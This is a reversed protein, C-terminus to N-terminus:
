LEVGLSGGGVYFGGSLRPTPQLEHWQFFFELHLPAYKNRLHLEGGVSVVHASADILCSQGMPAATGCPVGAAPPDPAPSWEFYYGGRLKVDVGATTARRWELAVRPVVTDHFNPPPSPPTGATAVQNPTPYASWHKYTVNVAILWAPSPTLAGEVAAQLPDYQSLGAIDFVPLDFPVVGTLKSDIRINYTSQSRGRFVAGLHIRETPDFRVGAIPAFDTVLQEESQSVIHGNGDTDIHIAGTLAALALVGAGISLHPALRIGGCIMVSVTQTNSDLLPLSPLDPYPQSARNVVGTPLYFGFGIALRDKLAGGLPLPLDAGLILGNSPSIDRKAGDLSVLYDGAVYGITLRRHPSFAIGAPNTYVSEYDDSYATGTGAMAGSRIGFGFRDPESAHAAAAVLVLTLALRARM